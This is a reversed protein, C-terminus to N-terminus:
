LERNDPAGGPPVPPRWKKPLAQPNFWMVFGFMAGLVILFMLASVVLAVAFLGLRQLTALCPRGEVDAPVPVRRKAGALTAKDAATAM